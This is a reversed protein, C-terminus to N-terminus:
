FFFLFLICGSCVLGGVLLPFLYLLIVDLLSLCSCFSFSAVVPQFLSTRGVGQKALLNTFGNAARGVAM